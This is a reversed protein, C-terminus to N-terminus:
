SNVRLSPTKISAGPLAALGGKDEFSGFSQRSLVSVVDHLEALLPFVATELLPMRMEAAPAVRHHGLAVLAALRSPSSGFWTDRQGWAEFLLFVQDVLVTGSSADIRELATVLTRLSLTIVPLRANAVMAPSVGSVGSLEAVSRRLRM